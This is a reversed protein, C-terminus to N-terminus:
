CVSIGDACNVELTGFGGPIAIFADAEDSM